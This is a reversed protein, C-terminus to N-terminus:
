RMVSKEQFDESNCYNSGRTNPSTPTQDQHLHRAETMDMVSSPEREIKVNGSEGRNIVKPIVIQKKLDLSVQINKGDKSLSIFHELRDFMSKEMCVGKM